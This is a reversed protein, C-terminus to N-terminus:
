GELLKEGEWAGLAPARALNRFGGRFGCPKPAVSCELLEFKHWTLLIAAEGGGECM